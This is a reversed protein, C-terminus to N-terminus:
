LAARTFVALQLINVLADNISPFSELSQCGFSGGGGEFLIKSPDLNWGHLQVAATAPLSLDSASMAGGEATTGQLWTDFGVRDPISQLKFTLNDDGIFDSLGESKRGM